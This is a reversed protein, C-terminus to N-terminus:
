YLCSLCTGKKEWTRLQEKVDKLCTDMYIRLRSVVREVKTPNQPNLQRRQQDQGPLPRFSSSPLRRSVATTSLSSLSRRYPTRFDSPGVSTSSSSFTHNQDFQTRKTPIPHPDDAEIWSSSRKRQGGHRHSYNRSGTGRHTTNDQM